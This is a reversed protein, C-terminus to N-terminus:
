MQGLKFPCVDPGLRSQHQIKSQHRAVTALRSQLVMSAFRSPHDMLTLDQPYVQHSRESHNLITNHRTKLSNESSSNTLRIMSLSGTKWAQSTVLVKSMCILERVSKLNKKHMANRSKHCLNSWRFWTTENTKSSSSTELAMAQRM